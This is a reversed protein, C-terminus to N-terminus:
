CIKKYLPKAGFLPIETILESACANDDIQAITSYCSAQPALKVGLLRGIRTPRQMIVVRHPDFVRTSAIKQKESV